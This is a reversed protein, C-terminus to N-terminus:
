GADGSEEGTSRRVTPPRRGSADLRAANLPPPDTQPRFQVGQAPYLTLITTESAPRTSKPHTIDMGVQLMGGVRDISIVPAYGIATVVYDGVVLTRAVTRQTKM